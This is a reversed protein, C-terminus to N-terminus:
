PGKFNCYVGCEKHQQGRLESNHERQTLDNASRGSFSDDTLDPGKM